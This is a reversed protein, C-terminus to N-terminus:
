LVPCFAYRLPPSLFSMSPAGSPSGLRPTNRWAPYCPSRFGALRPSPANAGKPNQPLSRAQALRRPPISTSADSLLGWGRVMPVKTSGRLFTPPHNIASMMQSPSQTGWPTQSSTISGSRKKLASLAWYPPRNSSIWPPQVASRQNVAIAPAYHANSMPRRLFPTTAVVFIPNSQMVPAVRSTSPNTSPICGCNLMWM